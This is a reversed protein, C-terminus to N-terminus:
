IKWNDHLAHPQCWCLADLSLFSEWHNPHMLLSSKGSSGMFLMCGNLTQTPFLWAWFHPHLNSCEEDKCPLWLHAECIGYSCLSTCSPILVTDDCFDNHWIQWYLSDVTALSMQQLMELEVLVLV